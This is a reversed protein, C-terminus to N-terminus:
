HWHTHAHNHNHNHTRRFVHCASLRPTLNPRTRTCLWGSLTSRYRCPYLSPLIRRALELQSPPTTTPHMAVADHSLWRSVTTCSWQGTTLSRWGNLVGGCLTTLDVLGQAQGADAVREVMAEGRGATRPSANCQHSRRTASLWLTAVGLCHPDNLSIFDAVATGATYTCDVAVKRGPVPSNLLIATDSRRDHSEISVSGLFATEIRSSLGVKEESGDGDWVEKKV